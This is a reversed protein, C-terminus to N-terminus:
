PVKITNHIVPTIPMRVESYEPEFHGVMHLAANIYRRHIGQQKQQIGSLLHLLVEEDEASSENLINQLLQEIQQKVLQEM